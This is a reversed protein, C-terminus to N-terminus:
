TRVLVAPNGGAAADRRDRCATGCPIEGDCGLWVVQTRAFRDVGDIGIAMPGREAAALAHRMDPEATDDDAVVLTLHPPYGLELMHALAPM